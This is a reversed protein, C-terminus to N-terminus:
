RTRYFEIRRNKQRDEKTTNPAIPQDPGYGKATIRDSAIGKSTLLNKVADAREQSLRMNTKRSGTNDTHGRIEVAIEPHQDLTNFAKNLISESEVSIDAKGVAFVIGELVIAQGVDAKLEEKVDDAANLPSTGRGVEIGDDVTGGDTDAMLPNSTHRNVEEGDTLGDGDTDAKTPDTRHVSVESGDSLGDGDTDSKTPDTKISTVEEGDDLGDGDTDKKNANTRHTLCEAGDNLGDRDTDAQTPNTTYRKVEEGDKLGDGDTDPNEKDTGTAREEGNTLGDQDDDDADSSGLFFSLGAKATAYSDFSAGSGQNAYDTWEDMFRFGLDMTFAIDDSAFADFGVGVPIHISSEWENMNGPVYFNNSTRRKFFIGGAGAYVYPCFDNGPTIHAKVILSAPVADAKLYSWRAGSWVPSQEAKLLEWGTLLGLSIHSSLGYGIELEAGPGLKRDSLDNIWLNGGGRVGIIWRGDLNQGSLSGAMLLPLVLCVIAKNM